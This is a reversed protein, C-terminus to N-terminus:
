GRKLAALGSCVPNKREDGIRRMLADLNTGVRRSLDAKEQMAKLEGAHAVACRCMGKRSFIFHCETRACVLGRKASLVFGEAAIKELAEEAAAMGVARV